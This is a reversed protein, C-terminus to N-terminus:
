ASTQDTWRQGDWWRLRAQGQPDDYWGPSPGSAPPPPQPPYGPQPQPPYGAQPPGPQPAYGPQAPQAGGAWGQGPPYSMPSVAPILQAIPTGAYQEKVTYTGAAMDGVRQNKDTVLLLIFGVLYPIFYPFSDVFVLLILRLFARGVGPPNGDEGVLRIKAVRRGPSTGRTGPLVAFITIVTAAYILFWLGRKADDDFAYRTDGITVGNETGHAHYRGTLAFFFAGIVVTAILSDILFAGVRQGVVQTPKEQM